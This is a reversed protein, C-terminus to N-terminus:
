IKTCKNEKWTVNNIIYAISSASVGYAKGLSKYSYQKTNYDARIATALEMSLKVSPLHRNLELRGVWKVNGPEYDKNLDIRMLHRKGKPRPGVDKYFAIFSYHWKDCVKIGKEGVYQYTSHNYNTCRQIMTQWSVYEPLRRCM